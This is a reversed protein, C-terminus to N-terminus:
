DDQRIVKCQNRELLRILQEQIKLIDAQTMSEPFEVKFRGQTVMKEVM